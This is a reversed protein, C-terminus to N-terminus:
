LTTTFVTSSLPLLFGQFVSPSKKTSKEFRGIGLFVSAISSTTAHMLNTSIVRSIASAMSTAPNGLVYQYNEIIAFAIGITFGYIATDVFYSFDQQRIIYFIILAKLIEEIIPAIFRIINLASINVKLFLPNITYAGVYALLGAVASM